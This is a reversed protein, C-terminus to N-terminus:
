AGVQREVSRLRQILFWSPPHGHALTNRIQRLDERYGRGMQTKKLIEGFSAFDWVDHPRAPSSPPYTRQLFDGPDTYRDQIQQTELNPSAARLPRALRSRELSEMDTCRGMIERALPACSLCSRLWPRLLGNPSGLLAARAAWPSPRLRDTHLPRWWLGLRELESSLSGKPAAVHGHADAQLSMNWREVVESTLAHLDAVACDNLQRELAADDGSAISGIGASDWCRARQLDGGTEWALRHHVYRRWLVPDPLDLSDLAPQCPGGVGLDWGREHGSVVRAIPLVFTIQCSPAAKGLDIVFTRAHEVTGLPDAEGWVLLFRPDRVFEGVTRLFPWYGENDDLGMAQCVSQWFPPVLKDAEVEVPVCDAGPGETLLLLDVVRQGLESSLHPHAIELVIRGSTGRWGRDGIWTELSSSDRFRWPLSSSALSVHVTM